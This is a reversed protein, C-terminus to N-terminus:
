SLQLRRIEPFHTYRINEKRVMGAFTGPSDVELRDDFMKIQIDPGLFSYERIQGKVFETSKQVMELIRGEFVVDKIVNM